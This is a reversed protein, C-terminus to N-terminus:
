IFARGVSEHQYQIFRQTAGASTDMIWCRVLCHEAGKWKWCTLFLAQMTSITTSTQLVYLSSTLAASRGAAAATAYRYAMCVGCQLPPPMKPPALIGNWCCGVSLLNYPYSFNSKAVAAPCFSQPPIILGRIALYEPEPLGYPIVFLEPWM